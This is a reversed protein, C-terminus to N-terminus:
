GDGDAGEDWEVWRAGEELDQADPGDCVVRELLAADDSFELVGIRDDVVDDVHVVAVRWWDTGDHEWLVGVHETEVYGRTLCVTPRRSWLDQVAEPLNAVDYGLLGPAEADPSVVDLLGDLNRANFREAVADLADAEGDDRLGADLDDTLLDVDPDDLHVGYDDTAIAPVAGNSVDADSTSGPDTEVDDIRDLGSEAAAQYRDVENV